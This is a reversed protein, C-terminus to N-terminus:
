KKLLKCIKQCESGVPVVGSCSSSALPIGVGSMFRRAMGRRENTGRSTLGQSNM